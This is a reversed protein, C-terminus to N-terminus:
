KDANMLESIIKTAGFYLGNFAKAYLYSVNKGTQQASITILAHFVDQWEGNELFPISLDAKLVRQKTEQLLMQM